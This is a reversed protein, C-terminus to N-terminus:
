SNGESEDPKSAEAIGNVLDALMLLPLRMCNDETPEYPKGDKTLDWSVIMDSVITALVRATKTEKAKAIAEELAPTFYNPDFVINVTAGHVEIAAEETETLLETLDPM